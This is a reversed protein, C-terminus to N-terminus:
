KIVSDMEKCSLVNTASEIQEVNKLNYGLWGMMLHVCRRINGPNGHFWGTSDSRRSILRWGSRAFV